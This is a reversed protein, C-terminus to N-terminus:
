PMAAMARRVNRVFRAGRDVLPAPYTLRVDRAVGIRGVLPSLTETVEAAARLSVDAPAPGLLVVRESTLAIAAPARQGPRRPSFLFGLVGEGIDAAADFLARAEAEQGFRGAAEADFAATDIPYLRRPLRGATDPCFRGALDRMVRVEDALEVPLHFHRRSASTTVVLQAFAGRLDCTVGLIREVPLIEIDVGWDSLYRDPQAHDVIWLLQRDTLALLAARRDIRSRFRELLGPDSAIPREVWYLLREDDDLLGELGRLFRPPLRGLSYEAASHPTAFRAMEPALSGLAYWARGSTIRNHSARERYRQRASLVIREAGAPDLWAAANDIGGAAVAVAPSPMAAGPVRALLATQGPGSWGGLLEVELLAGAFTSGPLAVLVAVRRGAGDDSDVLAAQDFGLWGAGIRAQKGILPQGAEGAFEVGPGRAQEVEVAIHTAM